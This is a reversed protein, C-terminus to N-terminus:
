ILIIRSGNKLDTDILKSNVSYIQGTEKSYLNTDEKIIYDNDSLELIGHEIIKKITGITKNIPVFLDYEREISPVYVEILIKNETM